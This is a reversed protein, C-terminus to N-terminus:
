MKLYGVVVVVAAIAAPLTTAGPPSVAGKRGNEPRGAAPSRRDVGGPAREDEGREIAVSPGVRRAVTAMKRRRSGAARWGGRKSLEHDAVMDAM